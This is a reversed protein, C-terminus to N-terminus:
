VDLVQGTSLSYASLRPRNVGSKLVAGTDVLVTSPRGDTLRVDSFWVGEEVTSLGFDGLKQVPTHGCIIQREPDLPTKALFVSRSSLREKDSQDELPLDVDYGAHVLRFADLVVESPLSDTFAMWESAKGLRNATDSDMSELTERGGVRLWFDMKRSSPDRLARSMIAEHNGKLSHINKGDRVIQLVGQSDPGRDILDGLCVVQDGESLRLTALLEEFASKCGHIDGVAWVDKGDDLANQLLTELRRDRHTQEM